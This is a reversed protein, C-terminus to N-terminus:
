SFMDNFFNRIQPNQYQIAQLLESHNPTSPFRGLRNGSNDIFEIVIEYSWTYQVDDLYYKYDRRYTRIIRGLYETIYVFDVKSDPGVMYSEPREEAWNISGHQTLEILKDIIQITERRSFTM